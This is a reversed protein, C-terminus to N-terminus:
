GQFDERERERGSYPVPKYRMEVAGQVAFVIWVSRCSPLWNQRDCCVVFFM